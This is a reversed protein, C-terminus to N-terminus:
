GPQLEAGGRAFVSVYTDPKARSVGHLAYLADMKAAQRWTPEYWHFLPRGPHLLALDYAAVRRQNQFGDRLVDLAAKASQPQGCLLRQGKPFRGENKVWWDRVKAADPWAAGSDEDMAVNDDKPDDNPGPEADAPTPRDLDLWALDAGTILAFAAGALRATAPHEMATLLWSVFSVDGSYGVALLLARKDQPKATQAQARSALAQLLAKCAKADACRLLLLAAEDQHPGAAQAAKALLPLSAKREGLLAAACAASVSVGADDHTFHESCKRLGDSVGATGALQLSQAILHPHGERQAWSIQADIMSATAVRHEACAGLGIERRRASFSELLSAVIGTLKEKDVYGFGAVIPEVMAPELESMTLIRDLWAPDRSELALVTHPFLISWDGPIEPEWPVLYGRRHAILLGETAALMRSYM